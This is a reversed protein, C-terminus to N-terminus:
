RWSLLYPLRARITFPYAHLMGADNAVNVEAFMFIHTSLFGSTLDILNAIGLDTLYVLLYM